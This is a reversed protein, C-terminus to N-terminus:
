MVIKSPDVPPLHRAQISLESLRERFATNAVALIKGAVAPRYIARIKLDWQDYMRAAAGEIQADTMGVLDVAVGLLDASGVGLKVAMAHLIKDLKM